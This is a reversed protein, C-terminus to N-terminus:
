TIDVGLAPGLSVIELDLTAYEELQARWTGRFFNGFMFPKSIKGM